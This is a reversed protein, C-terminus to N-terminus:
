GHLTLGILVGSHLVQIGIRSTVLILLWISRHRLIGDCVYSFNIRRHFINTRINQFSYVLGLGGLVVRMIIRLINYHLYISSLLSLTSLLQITKRWPVTAFSVEAASNEPVSYRPM